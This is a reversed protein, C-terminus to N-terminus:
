SENEGTMMLRDKDDIHIKQDIQAMKLILKEVEIKMSAFQNSIRTLKDFEINDNRLDAELQSMAPTKAGCPVNESYFLNLYKESNKLLSNDKAYLKPYIEKEMLSAMELLSNISSFLIGHKQYNHLYMAHRMNMTVSMIDPNTIVDDIDSKQPLNFEKQAPTFVADIRYITGNCKRIIKDSTIKGRVTGSNVSTIINNLKHIAIKNQAIAVVNDNTIEGIVVHALIVARLEVESLKLLDRLKDDSPMFVTFPGKMSLLIVLKAKEIIEKMVGNANLIYAEITNVRESSVLRNFQVVPLLIFHHDRLDFVDNAEDYDAYALIKPMSGPHSVYHIGGACVYAYGTHFKDLTAKFKDKIDSSIVDFRQNLLSIDGQSIRINMPPEVFVYQGQDNICYFLVVEMSDDSYRFYLIKVVELGMTKLHDKISDIDQINNTKLINIGTVTPVNISCRPSANNVLSIEQGQQPTATFSASDVEFSQM